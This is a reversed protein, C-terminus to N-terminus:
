IDKRSENILTMEQILEEETVDSNELDINNGKFIVEKAKLNEKIRIFLTKSNPNCKLDLLVELKPFNLRESKLKHKTYSDQARITYYPYYKDDNRKLFVFRERKTEEEEVAIELKHQISKNQKKLGRMEVLLDENQDKVEELSIGLSRM